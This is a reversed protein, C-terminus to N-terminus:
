QIGIKKMWTGPSMEMIQTFNRYYSQINNYGSRQAVDKINIDPMESRMLDLSYEVRLRNIFDSFNRNSCAHISQSLYTRNTHLAEAMSVLSIYPDLFLKEDKIRQILKKDDDNGEVTEKSTASIKEIEDPEDTEKITGSIKEIEDSEDTEDPVQPQSGLKNINSGFMYLMTSLFLVLFLTIAKKFMIDDPLILIVALVVVSAFLFLLIQNPVDSLDDSIDFYEASLKNYRHVAVYSWILIATVQIGLFIYCAPNSDLTSFIISPIFVLWDWKSLEGKVTVERISLYVFPFVFLASERWFLFAHAALLMGATMLMQPKSIDKRLFIRVAWFLMVAAPIFYYTVDPM